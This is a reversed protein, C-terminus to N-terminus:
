SCSWISTPFVVHVSLTVPVSHIGYQLSYLVSSIMSSVHV